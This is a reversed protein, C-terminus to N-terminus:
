AKRSIKIEGRRCRKPDCERETESNKGGGEPDGKDRQGQINDNRKQSDATYNRPLHAFADSRPPHFLFRLAESANKNGIGRKPQRFTLRSQKLIAHPALQTGFKRTSVSDRGLRNALIETETTHTLWETTEGKQHVIRFSQTVNERYM